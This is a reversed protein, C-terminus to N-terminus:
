PVLNLALKAADRIDPNAHKTLQKLRAVLKKDDVISITLLTQEIIDDNQSQLATLLMETRDMPNQWKNIQRIAQSAVLNSEDSLATIIGQKAEAGNLEGLTMVALERDYEDEASDIDHLAEDLKQPKESDSLPDEAPPQSIIKQYQQQLLLDAQAKMEASVRPPQRTDPAPKTDIISLQRYANLIAKDAGNQYALYLAAGFITLGLLTNIIKM